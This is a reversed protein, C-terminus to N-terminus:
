LGSKGSLSIMLRNSYRYAYEVHWFNALSVRNNNPALCSHIASILSELTCMNGYWVWVLWTIMVISLLEVMEKANRAYHPGSLICVLVIKATCGCVDQRAPLGVFGQVM